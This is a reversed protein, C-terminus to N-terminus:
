TNTKPGFVHPNKRCTGSTVMTLIKSLQDWYTIKWKQHWHPMAISKRWLLLMHSTSCCMLSPKAAFLKKRHHLSIESFAFNWKTHHHLKGVCQFDLLLKKSCECSTGLVCFNPVFFGFAIDLPQGKGIKSKRNWRSFFQM